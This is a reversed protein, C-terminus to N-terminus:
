GNEEILSSVFQLYESLKPGGFAFPLAAFKESLFPLGSIIADSDPALLALGLKSNFLAASKLRTLADYDRFSYGITLLLRAHESCRGYYDYATFYPDYIAVKRTAPYILINKYSASDIMQHFPPTRIIIGRKKALVWDVSGHMKFLVINRKSPKLSFGHFVDADWQYERAAYIHRFGDILEYKDSDETCFTEIAPDYNTTFIPLCYRESDIKAFITEFLPEYLDSVAKGAVSSYQQIIQYQIQTRFQEAQETTLNTYGGSRFTSVTNGYKLSCISDIEDLIKELDNECVKALYALDGQNDAIKSLIDTVFPQMTPKGLPQSAGAGLFLIVPSELILQNLKM